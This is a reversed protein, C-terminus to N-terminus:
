WSQERPAIQSANELFSYYCCVASFLLTVTEYQQQLMVYPCVASVHDFKVLQELGLSPLIFLSSVNGFLFPETM